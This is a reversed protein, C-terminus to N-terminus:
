IVLGAEGFGVAILSDEVGKRYYSYDGRQVSSFEYAKAGSKVERYYLTTDKIFLELSINPMNPHQELELIGKYWGPAPTTSSLSFTRNGSKVLGEAEEQLRVADDWKNELKVCCDREIVGKFILNTSKGCSNNLDIVVSKDAKKILDIYAVHIEKEKYSKVLNTVMDDFIKKSEDLWIIKDSVSSLLLNKEEGDPTTYTFKHKSGEAYARHDDCYQHNPDVYGLDYGIGFVVKGNHVYAIKRAIKQTTDQM